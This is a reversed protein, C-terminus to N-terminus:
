EPIRPAAAMALLALAAICAADSRLCHCNGLAVREFGKRELKELERGTWGREPGIALVADHRPARLARDLLNGAAGPHAVVRLENPAPPPLADVIRAFRAHVRVDPLWPTGAQELGERLLPRYAEAQLWHTGLYDRPTRAPRVIIVRAVNLGPLHRWLRKLTKPRPAALMLTTRPRQPVRLPRYELTVTDDTRAVVIGEGCSVNEQLMRVPRGTEVGLAGLLHRARRGSLEVRASKMEDPHVWVWNM